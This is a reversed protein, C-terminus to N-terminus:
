LEKRTVCVNYSKNQIGQPMVNRSQPKGNWCSLVVHHIRSVIVWRLDPTFSKLIYMSRRQTSSFARCIPEKACYSCINRVSYTSLCSM